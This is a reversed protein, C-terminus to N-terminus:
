RGPEAQWGARHFAGERVLTERIQACADGFARSTMHELEIPRPLRPEVIAAVRGPRASMVAIRHGLLVAETISHTVFLVAVGASLGLHQLDLAMQERTLADLAAFPEDMLLLEPEHILARCLAVRQQMGGSLEHPMADEFGALGVQALLARARPAHDAVRWGRMEVQVLVNDLASRWRLLLPRQFIMGLRESPGEVRRGGVTITGATPRDLGAILSLLTSKGCGSPGVLVLFEGAGIELEVGRLAELDALHQRRFTHGVNRVVVYPDAM